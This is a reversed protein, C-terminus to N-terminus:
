KTLNLASGCIAFGILLLVGCSLLLGKAWEYNGPGTLFLIVSLLLELAGICIATIAFWYVYGSGAPEGGAFAFLLGLVLSAGLSFLLIKITLNM